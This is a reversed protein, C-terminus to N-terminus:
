KKDTISRIYRIEYASLKHQTVIKIFEQTYLDKCNATQKLVRKYTKAVDSTIIDKLRKVQKDTMKFEIRIKAIHRDLDAETENSILWNCVMEKVPKQHTASPMTYIFSMFQTLIGDFSQVKELLQALFDAREYKVAKNKLRTMSPKTLRFADIHIDDALTYDFPILDYSHLKLPDAFVCVIVDVYKSTNLVDLHKRFVLHNTFILVRPIRRPLLDVCYQIDKNELNLLKKFKHEIFDPAHNIVGLPIM